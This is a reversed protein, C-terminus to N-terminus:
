LGQSQGGLWHGRNFQGQDEPLDESTAMGATTERHALCRATNVFHRGYGVPLGELWPM